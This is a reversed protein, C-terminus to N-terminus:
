YDRDEPYVRTAKPQRMVRLRKTTFLGYGRITEGPFISCTRGDKTASVSTVPASGSRAKKRKSPSNKKSMEFPLPKVTACLDMDMGSIGSDSEPTNINVHRSNIETIESASRTQLKMRHCEPRFSITSDVYHHSSPSSDQTPALIPPSPPGAAVGLGERGIDFTSHRTDNRQWSVSIPSSLVSESTSM